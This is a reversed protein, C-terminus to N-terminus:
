TLLGAEVYRNKGNSKAVYMATDADRVLDDAAAGARSIAIGISASVRAQTGAVDIPVQVDAIVREATTRAEAATALGDLIIAFEDGGFRTITDGARLAVRLRDAVARLVTDGAHHGLEDNVQKFGDLDIFLLGVLREPRATLAHTLRDYFLARNALGTLPDHFALHQLQQERERLRAEVHERQAIDRRLAATAQDVKRLARSRSGALIGTLAALLLTLVAGAALTLWSMGRDTSELLRTTPWMTIQWRRQGIFLTRHRTLSGQQARQGPRVATLVAGNEDSETVSAQIAGQGRDLLIQSLFDQGRVSMVIWGAFRDPLASGQTTYIPEAFVISSQRLQEPLKQDRVLHFASSVALTHGQWARRLANDLQPIHTVDLGPVVANGGFARDFIVFAHEAKGPAPRLMLGTAGRARWNQQVTGLQATTAPVVFSIGAVGPLRASELGATLRAYDDSFLSSQAGVAAALVHLIDGYHAARDSVGASLDDAYRDMLRGADRMGSRDVTNFAASTILGGTALVAVVLMM